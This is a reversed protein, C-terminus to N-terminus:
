VIVPHCQGQPQVSAVAQHPAVSAIDNAAALLCDACCLISGEMQANSLANVSLFGFCSAPTVFSATDPLLQALVCTLIFISLKVPQKM